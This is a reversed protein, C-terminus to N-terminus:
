VEIKEVVAFQRLLLLARQLHDLDFTSGVLGGRGRQSDTEFVQLHDDEPAPPLDVAAHVPSKLIERRRAGQFDSGVSNGDVVLGTVDDGARHRFEGHLGRDRDFEM